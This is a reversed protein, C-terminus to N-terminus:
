SGNAQATVAWLGTTGISKFDSLKDGNYATIMTRHFLPYIPVEESIIDQAEDWKQQQEAGELKTADKIVTQLKEYAAKDSEQWFTRKQTWVNDGYWWNVLLAPDNGFVSPDGPALAVDFTPNDVDLHNSYLSASAESQLATKIGVAELDNKIQPALSAIWPHDTNLLTISLDKVGAEDLLEKAKEPNYTYVNEAEKFNPHSEPLFSKAAKAKGDMNNSILKETDVAYLFAQRVKADNFPAKNTNFLLFPLNFGDVEDVTMGAAKLMDVSAAPVAEMIDVTGSTAATTRATDDKIVDWTLKSAGPAKPGNYHENPVATVKSDTIEEYKYPGTGVPKSTLEDASADKQVIKVIALRKEALSFPETLKITVTSDDKATVSEIFDLMTAYLNGEAMAAEFSKVVDASTVDTGDSFKAGDRLTVEMETDSVKVPEGKALAPYTSYDNMNFEYLGEMVHWNTGMALASSTNTPNYNTTEYAVGLNIEGNGSGATSGTDPSDSGGSCATVTLAVAAIVATLGRKHNWM